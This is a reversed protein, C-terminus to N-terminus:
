LHTNEKDFVVTELALSVTDFTILIKMKFFINTTETIHVLSRNLWM